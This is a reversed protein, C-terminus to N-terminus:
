VRERCSARGIKLEKLGFVSGGPSDVDMVIAGIAPDALLTDFQQGFRDTSTGGPGSVDDVMGARQAIVGTLPLVAINGSVSPVRKQRGGVRAEIEEPTLRDDAVHRNLMDVIIGAYEPLIAWPAGTVLQLLKPYNM